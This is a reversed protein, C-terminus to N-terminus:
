AIERINPNNGRYVIKGNRGYCDTSRIGGLLRREPEKYQQPKMDVSRRRRHHLVGPYSTEIQDIIYVFWALERVLPELMLDIQKGCSM